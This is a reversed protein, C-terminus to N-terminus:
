FKERRPPIFLLLASYTSLLIIILLLTWALVLISVGPFSEDGLFGTSALKNLGIYTWKDIFMPLVLFAPFLLFKEKLGRLRIFARLLPLATLLIIIMLGALAVTHSNSKDPHQFLQRLGYTEDSGGAMAALIRVFPITAFVFLFGLSQQMSTRKRAMLWWGFWVILYTIFPGAFWIWVQAQASATCETCLTWNDFSKTGWCGCILRAMVFHAWDHCEHIFFILALFALFFKATFRIRM